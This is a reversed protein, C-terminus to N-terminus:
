NHDMMVPVFKNGKLTKPSPGLIDRSVLELPATLTFLQLLRWGTDSTKKQVSKRCDTVIVYVDNGMLSSYYEGLKTNYLHKEGSQRALTPHHLQYLLTSASMYSRCRACGLWRTSNTNFDIGARIMKQDQSDWQLHRKIVARTKQKSKYSGRHPSLTYTSGAKLQHEWHTNKPYDSLKNTARHM